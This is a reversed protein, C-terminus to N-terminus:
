RMKTSFITKCFHIDECLQKKLQRRIFRQYTSSEKVVLLLSKKGLFILLIQEFPTQFPIVGNREFSFFIVKPLWFKVNLNSNQNYKTQFKLKSISAKHSQWIKSSLNIQFGKNGEILGLVYLNTFHCLIYRCIVFARGCSEEYAKFSMIWFQYNQSPWIM